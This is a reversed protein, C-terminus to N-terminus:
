AAVRHLEEAATLIAPRIAEWTYHETVIARAQEALRTRLVDDDLLRVCSQMFADASEAVLVGDEHRAAIGEMAIPTAVLPRGAMMAELVKLKTGSGARLPAVVISARAYFPEVSPVSEYLEVGLARMRASWGSAGARGVAVFRVSPRALRLAPLIESAFWEVADANPEWGFSGVFLVNGVEPADSTVSVTSVGNPVVYTRNPRSGVRAHDEDRAIVVASFRDPLREEYRRLKRADIAGLARGIGWRMRELSRMAQESEIDDYDVLVRSFGAAKVMEACGATDAWAPLDGARHRIAALAAVFEDSFYGRALSPLEDLLLSSLRRRISPQWIPFAERQRFHAREVPIITLSECLAALEGPAPEEGDGYMVAHVRYTSSLGRLIHFLRLAGGTHLPWPVHPCAYLLQPRDISTESTL